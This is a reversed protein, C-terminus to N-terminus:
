LREMETESVRKREQEGKREIGRGIRAREREGERV